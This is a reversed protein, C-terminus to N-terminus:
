LKGKVRLALLEKFFSTLVFKVQVPRNNFTEPISGLANYITQGESVTILESAVALSKLEQFKVFEEMDMDLNQRAEEVKDETTLGDAIRQNIDDEKRNIMDQIRNM